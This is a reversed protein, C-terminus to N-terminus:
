LSTGDINTWEIGNWIIKKKLTTDYYEVGLDNNGLLPRKDTSGKYNNSIVSWVSGNYEILLNTDAELLRRGTSNLFDPRTESTCSGVNCWVINPSSLPLPTIKCTGSTWGSPYTDGLTGDTIAVFM